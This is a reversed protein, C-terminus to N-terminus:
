QDLNGRAPAEVRSWPGITTNRWVTREAFKLFCSLWCDDQFLALEQFSTIHECAGVEMGRDFCKFFSTVTRADRDIRVTKTSELYSLRRELTDGESM